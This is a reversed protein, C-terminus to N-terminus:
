KRMSWFESGELNGSSKTPSYELIYLIIKSILDDSFFKLEIHSILNIFRNVSGNKLLFEVLENDNNVKSCQQSLLLASVIERCLEDKDNAQLNAFDSSLPSSFLMSLIFYKALSISYNDMISEFGVDEHESAEENKRNNKDQKFKKQCYNVLMFADIGLQVINKYQNKMIIFFQNWDNCDSLLCTLNLYNQFKNRQTESATQMYADVIKPQNDNNKDLLSIVESIRLNSAHKQMIIDILEPFHQVLAYLFKISLKNIYESLYKFIQIAIDKQKICASLFDNEFKEQHSTLKNLLIKVNDKALFRKVEAETLGICIIFLLEFQQAGSLYSFSRANDAIAQAFSMKKKAIELIQEGSYEANEILSTIDTGKPPALTLVRCNDLNIGDNQDLRINVEEDLTVILSEDDCGAGPDKSLEEDFIKRKEPDEFIEYAKQIEEFKSRTQAEPNKDPHYKIVLKKYATKIEDLSYKNGSANLGNAALGLISYYNKM